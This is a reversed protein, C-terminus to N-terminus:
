SLEKFDKDLPDASPEKEQDPEVSDPKKAKLHSRSRQEKTHKTLKILFQISFRNTHYGQFDYARGWHTTNNDSCDDHKDKNTCATQALPWRLAASFAKGPSDQPQVQSRAHIDSELKGWICM